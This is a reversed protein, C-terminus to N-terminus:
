KKPVGRLTMSKSTGGGGGSAQDFAVTYNAWAGIAISNPTWTPTYTTSAAKAILCAGQNEGAPNTAIVPVTQPSIFTGPSCISQSGGGTASGLYTVVWGANTVTIAAGTFASGTADTGTANTPTAPDLFTTAGGIWSIIMFESELAQGGSFTPTITTTSGCTGNQMYPMQNAGSGGNVTGIPNPQAWTGTTNASSITVAPATGPIIRGAAGNWIILISTEDGRCPFEFTPATDAAKLRGHFVNIPYMGSPATGSTDPRFTLAVIIGKRSADMDIRPSAVGATSQIQYIAYSSDLTDWALRTYGAVPSWGTLTAATNTQTAFAIVLEGDVATAATSCDIETATFKDTCTKDLAGTNYTEFITGLTFNHAAAWTCTLVQPGDARNLTYFSSIRQDGNDSTPGVTWAISKDDTCDTPAVGAAGNVFAIGDNGNGMPQPLRMVYATITGASDVTPNTTAHAFAPIALSPRSLALLFGIAFIIRKM